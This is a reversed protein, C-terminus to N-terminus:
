EKFLILCRNWTLKQANEALPKKDVYRKDLAYPYIEAIKFIMRKATLNETAEQNLGYATTEIEHAEQKHDIISITCTSEFTTTNNGLRPQNRASTLLPTAIKLKQCVKRLEEQADVNGLDFEMMSSPGM